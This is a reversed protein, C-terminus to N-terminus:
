GIATRCYNWFLNRAFQVDRVTDPKTNLAIDIPNERHDV